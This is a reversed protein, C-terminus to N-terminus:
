AGMQQAIVFGLFAGSGLTLLLTQKDMGQPKLLKRLRIARNSEKLTAKSGKLQEIEGSWGKDENESEEKDPQYVDASLLTEKHLAQTGKFGDRTFYWEENDIIHPKSTIKVEQTKGDEEFELKKDDAFKNTDHLRGSTGELILLKATNNASSRNKGRLKPTPKPTKRLAFEYLKTLPNSM